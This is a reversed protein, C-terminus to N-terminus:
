KILVILLATVSILLPINPHKEAFQNMPVIIKNDIFDSLNIVTRNNKVNYFEEKIVDPKPASTILVPKEM